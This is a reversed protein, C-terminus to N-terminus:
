MSRLEAQTLGLLLDLTSRFEAERCGQWAVLERGKATILYIQYPGGISPILFDFLRGFLAQMPGFLIVTGWGSGVHGHKANISTVGRLDCRHSTLPAFGVHLRTAFRDGRIRSTRYTGALILPVICALCREALSRRSALVIPVLLLILVVVRVRLRVGLLVQAGSRDKGSKSATAPAPQRDNTRVARRWTSKALANGFGVEADEAPSPREDDSRIALVRGCKACKARKGLADDRFKLLAGCERCRVVISM